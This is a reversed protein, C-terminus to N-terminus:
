KNQSQKKLWQKTRENIIDELKTRKGHERIACKKCIRYEKYSHEPLIAFNGWIYVDQIKTNHCMHCKFYTKPLKANIGNM